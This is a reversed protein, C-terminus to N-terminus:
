SKLWRANSNIDWIALIDLKKISVPFKFEFGYYM